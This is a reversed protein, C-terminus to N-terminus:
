MPPELFCKNASPEHGAQLRFGSQNSQQGAMELERDGRGGQETLEGLTIHAAEFVVDLLMLERDDVEVFAFM